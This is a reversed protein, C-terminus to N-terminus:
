IITSIQNMQLPPVNEWIHHGIIKHQFIVDISLHPKAILSSGFVLLFHLSCPVCEKRYPFGMFPSFDCTSARNSFKYKNIRSTSNISM